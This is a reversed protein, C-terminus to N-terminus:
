ARSGNHISLRGMAMTLHLSAPVEKTGCELHKKAYPLAEGSFYRDDYELLILSYSMTSLLKYKVSLLRVERLQM